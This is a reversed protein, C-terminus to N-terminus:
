PKWDRGPDAPVIEQQKALIPLMPVTVGPRQVAFTTVGDEVRLVSRESGSTVVDLTTSLPEHFHVMSAEFNPPHDYGSVVLVKNTSEWLRAVLGQYSEVDAQHILVDLCLTLDARVQHDALSGVLFRGDPRGAKALRVAESSLDMGVYRLIHLGKTAQGDGCGVDLVSQPQVAELLAELLARKRELAEGRSGVGSGLEPNTLYRWQWFTANPFAEHWLESVTANLQDLRSDIAPRETRQVRGDRILDGHYRIVAPPTTDDSTPLGHTSTNWRRELAFHGVREAALALAMAVQDLCHAWEGLLDAREVLWRGWHEWARAVSGLLPDPVLYLGDDVNGLITSGSPDGLLAVEPPVEVGASDFVSKLVSVPPIPAEVLRAGVQDPPIPLARPDELIAVDTKTVVAMGDVGMEALRLAGSISNCGPFRTDFASVERVTVDNAALYEFVESSHGDVAWVVLDRPSVGAIRTLSAFWRLADLHRGPDDDVVCSFVGRFSGEPDHVEQQTVLPTKVM